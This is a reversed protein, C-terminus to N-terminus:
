GPFEDCLRGPRWEAAVLPVYTERTEDGPWIIRDERLLKGTIEVWPGPLSEGAELAAITVTHQQPPTQNAVCALAGWATLSLGVLVGALVGLRAM